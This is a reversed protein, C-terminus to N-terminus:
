KAYRPVIHNNFVSLAQSMTGYKVYFELVSNTVVVVEGFGLKLVLCHCMCGFCSDGIGISIKFLPPLTYRDPLVGCRKFEEFVTLADFYMSSQTYSAIM